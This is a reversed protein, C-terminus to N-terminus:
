PSKELIFGTPIEALDPGQLAEESFLTGLKEAFHLLAYSRSMEAEEHSPAEFRFVESGMKYEYLVENQEM